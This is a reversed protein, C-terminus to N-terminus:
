ENEFLIALLTQPIEEAFSLGSMTNAAGFLYVERDTNIYDVAGFHPEIQGVHGMGDFSMQWLGYSYGNSSNPNPNGTMEKWADSSIIKGGSLGRMWKDMDAANSVIDGAGNAVGPNTTELMLETKSLASAWDQDELIDQVFGTHTMELPEFFNKRLFDHYAAGSVQSVIDALLFYNSNSYEYDDGPEFDLEEAFMAERIIKINEEENGGLM